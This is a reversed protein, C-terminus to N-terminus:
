ITSENQYGKEITHLQYNTPTKAKSLTTSPASSQWDELVSIRALALALHFRNNQMANRCVEVIEREKILEAAVIEQLTPARFMSAITQLLKM